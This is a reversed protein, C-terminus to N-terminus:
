SHKLINWLYSDKSYESANVEDDPVSNEEFALVGFQRWFSNYAKQKNM